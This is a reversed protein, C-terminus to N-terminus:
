LAGRIDLWEDEGERCVRDIDRSHRWGSGEAVPKRSGQHGEAPKGQQCQREICKVCTANFYSGSQLDGDRERFVSWLHDSRQDDSDTAVGNAKTRGTTRRATGGQLPLRLEGEPKVGYSWAITAVDNNAFAVANRMPLGWKVHTEDIAIQH